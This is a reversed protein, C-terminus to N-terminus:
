WFSINLWDNSTQSQLGAETGGAGAGGEARCLHKRTDWKTFAGHDPLFFPQADEQGELGINGLGLGLGLGGVVKVVFCSKLSTIHALLAACERVSANADLYVLVCM